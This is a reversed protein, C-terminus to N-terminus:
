RAGGRGLLELEYTWVSVDAGSSAISLILDGLPMGAVAQALKAQAVDSAGPIPALGANAASGGGVAGVAEALVLGTFADLVQMTVVVTVTDSATKIGIRGIEFGLPMPIPLTQKATGALTVTGSVKMRGTQAGISDRKTVTATFAM